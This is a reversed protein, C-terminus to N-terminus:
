IAPQQISARRTSSSSMMRGYQNTIKKRTEALIICRFKLVLRYFFSMFFPLLTNTQGSRAKRCGEGVPDPFLRNRSLEKVRDNPNTQTLNPGRSSSFMTRVTHIITAGNNNKICSWTAEKFLFTDCCFAIQMPGSNECSSM